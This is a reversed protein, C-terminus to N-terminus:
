IEIPEEGVVELESIGLPLLLRFDVFLYLFESNLLIRNRVAVDTM